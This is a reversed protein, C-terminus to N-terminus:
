ETKGKLYELKAIATTRNYYAELLGLKAALITAQADLIEIYTGLGEKYRGDLVEKTAKAADYQAKKAEITKNYHEIDILLSEVEDQIALRKSAEQEQAMQTAIKAQQEQATLRGGSYLPSNLVVGASKADYTNLTDFHTYSVIADFSGYHSNKSAKHLLTSKEINAQTIKLQFNEELVAKEVGDVIPKAYLFDSQLVEDNPIKEGMYLSLTNKAKTFAAKAASLREKAVYVSSLFRSADASTKLGQDVLALAQKYYAEKAELDKQMVDIAEKQVVMVGYLVKVRYVMLAKAEALSLKAIQEEKKSVDILDLTKGFDWIKQKLVGGADWGDEDTTHFEGNQPFVYTRKIDYQAQLTLQPLYASRTASVKKETQKAKLFFTKIDPHNALTKEISQQLTLADVGFVLMFLLFLTKM